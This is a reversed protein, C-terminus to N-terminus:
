PGWYDFRFTQGRKVEFQIHNSGDACSIARRGSPVLGRAGIPHPWPKGDVYLSDCGPSEAVLLYTRGDASPTSQGRLESKGCSLLLPSMLPLLRLWQFRMTVIM